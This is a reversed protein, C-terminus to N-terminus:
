PLFTIPLPPSPPTPNIQTKSRVQPSSKTILLQVLAQSFHTYKDDDFVPASGDACTSASGDSCTPRTGDDCKPPGGGPKGGSGGPKGGPKGGTGGGTGGGPRGGPRGGSDQFNCAMTISALLITILIVKM